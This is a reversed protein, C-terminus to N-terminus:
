AMPMEPAVMIRRANSTRGSSNSQRSAVFAMVAACHTRKTATSPALRSRETSSGAFCHAWTVPWRHLAISRGRLVVHSRGSQLLFHNMWHVGDFEQAGIPVALCMFHHNSPVYKAAQEYEPKLAKCHGCWPAYFEVFWLDNSGIVKDDFSAGSLNVVGSASSYFGGGGGAAAHLGHVNVM